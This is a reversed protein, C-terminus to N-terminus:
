SKGRKVHNQNWRLSYGLERANLIAGEAELETMIKVKGRTSSGLDNLGNNTEVHVTDNETDNETDSELETDNPKMPESSTTAPEVNRNQRLRRPKRQTWGEGPINLDIIDDEYRKIQTRIESDSGGLPLGLTGTTEEFGQDVPNEQGLALAQEMYNRTDFRAHSTAELKGNKRVFLWGKTDDPYGIM